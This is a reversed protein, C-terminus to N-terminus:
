LFSFDYCPKRLHVQPLIMRVVYSIGCNTPLAATATAGSSGGARGRKRSASYLSVRACHLSPVSMQLPSHRPEPISSSCLSSHYANRHAVSRSRVSNRVRNMCLPFSKTYRPRQQRHYQFDAGKAYGIPLKSPTGGCSLPSPPLSLCVAGEFSPGHSKGTDRFPTACSASYYSWDSTLSALESFKLM